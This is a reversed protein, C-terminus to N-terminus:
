QGSTALIGHEITPSYPPISLAGAQWDSQRPTMDHSVTGADIARHRCTFCQAERFEAKEDVSCPLPM